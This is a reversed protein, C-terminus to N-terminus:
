ERQNALGEGLRLQSIVIHARDHEDSLGLPRNEVERHNRRWTCLRSDSQVPEPSDYLDGRSHLGDCVVHSRAAGEEPSEEPSGGSPRGGLDPFTGGLAAFSLAPRGAQRLFGDAPDSPSGVSRSVQAPKGRDVPRGGPPPFLDRCVRSSGRSASSMSMFVFAVPRPSPVPDESQGGRGAALYCHREILRSLICTPSQVTMLDQARNWRVMRIECTGRDEDPRLPLWCLARLCSNGGGRVGVAVIALPYIEESTGQQAFEM